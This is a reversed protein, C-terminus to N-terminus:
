ENRALEEAVLALYTEVQFLQWPPPYVLAFGALRLEDPDAEDETVLGVLTTRSSSKVVARALELGAHRNGSLEVVVVDPAQEACAMGAEFATAAAVVECGAVPPLPADLGVTVVRCRRPEEGTLEETPMGNDRLFQLLNARTM